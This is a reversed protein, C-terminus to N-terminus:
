KQIGRRNWTLKEGEAVTGSMSGLFPSSLCQVSLVLLESTPACCPHLLCSAWLYALAVPEPQVLSLQLHCSFLLLFPCHLNWRLM